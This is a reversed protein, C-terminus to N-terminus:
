KQGELALEARLSEIDRGITAVALARGGPGRFTVTADRAALDGIVDIREWAEAHGVYNIAVDYHQSWFFPVFAYRERAGLVNRAAVQGQRQAVVWHEIRISRGSGAEPYRAIDGAAFVGPASTELYENVLVGRDVKIGAKEALATSPRVGVGMVVVTADIRAGSELTVGKADISKPKQGLHFTVGKEEHLARVFDGLAPGLVRELPRADPAVVHVDIKRARLSAAAELGIFSAGIVVARAAGESAARESAAIIARSDALTRLTHVHPLDAGPITLRIPDAGTALILADYALTRGNKLAIERKATDIATAETGLMLDIKLADYHERPRLPIWEEPATGALYDKSLNPRDVPLADDAGVLTLPGTYGERRLMEAAAHGAAGAGLVVVSKPTAKTRLPIPLPERKARVFVKGSTREVDFTAVPNHAPAAVAVGTRLSFCAHHWPCRITDGTVLGEALPGSYHTCTAGIAFLEEGRRVLVVAEGLAHGLLPEDQKLADFAVGLTFDPGRLEDSGGGM